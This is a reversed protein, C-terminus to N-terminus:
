LLVIFSFPGADRCVRIGTPPPSLIQVADKTVGREAAEQTLRKDRTTVEEIKQSYLSEASM